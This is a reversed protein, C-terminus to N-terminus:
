SATDKYLKVNYHCPRLTIEGHSQGIEIIGGNGVAGPTKKFYPLSSSKLHKVELTVM